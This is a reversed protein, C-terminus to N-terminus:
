DLWGGSENLPVDAMKPVSLGGRPKLKPNEFKFGTSASLPVATRLPTPSRAPVILAVAEVTGSGAEITSKPVPRSARPRM